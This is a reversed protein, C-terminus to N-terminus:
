THDKTLETEEYAALRDAVQGIFYHRDGIVRPLMAWGNEVKLRIVNTGNRHETLREM